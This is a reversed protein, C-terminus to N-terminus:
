DGAADASGGGVTPGNDSCNSNCVAGFLECCVEGPACSLASSCAFLAGTCPDAPDQCSGVPGGGGSSSSSGASASCTSLSVGQVSDSGTCHLGNLCDTNREGPDAFCVQPTGPCSKACVTGVVATATGPCPCNSLDSQAGGSKFCCARGASCVQGTGCGIEGSCINAVPGGAPGGSSASSGGQPSAAPTCGTTAITSGPGSSSGRSSGADVVADIRATGSCGFAMALALLTVLPGGHSKM